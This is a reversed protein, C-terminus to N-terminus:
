PAAQAERESDDEVMLAELEDLTVRGQLFLRHLLDSPRADTHKDTALFVSRFDRIPASLGAAFAKALTLRAQALARDRKSADLDGADKEDFFTIDVTGDPNHLERWLRFGGGIDRSRSSSADGRSDDPSVSVAFRVGGVKSDDFERDIDKRTLIWRSGAKFVPHDTWEERKRKDGLDGVANVIETTLKHATQTYTYM